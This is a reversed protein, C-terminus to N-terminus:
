HKNLQFNSFSICEVSVGFLDGIEIARKLTPTRKGLEWLGVTAPSVDLLAALDRQTFGNKKRLERLTIKEEM